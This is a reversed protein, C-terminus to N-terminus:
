ELIDNGEVKFDVGFEALLKFIELSRCHKISILPIQSPDVGLEALCRTAVLWGKCISTTMMALHHSPAIQATHYINKITAVDGVECATNYKEWASAKARGEGEKQM